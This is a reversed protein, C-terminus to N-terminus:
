EGRRGSRWAAALAEPSNCNATVGPDDVTVDVAGAARMVERLTPGALVGEVVGEAVGRALWVPHGHKGRWTAIAARAATSALAAVTGPRVLPHDVPLLVVGRWSGAAVLRGLGCRLSGFMDLDPAALVVPVVGRPVEGPEGPPLTAAVPGAGGDALAAACAALFSRGDPLTAWAKPGGYRRGAGGALILGAFCTTDVAVRRPYM